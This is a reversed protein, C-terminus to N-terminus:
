RKEHRQADAPSKNHLNQINESKTSTAPIVYNNPSSSGFPFLPDDNM